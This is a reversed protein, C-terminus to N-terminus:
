NDEAGEGIWRLIYYRDEDTAYQQMSGGDIKKYLESDAPSNTNIYGKTTLEVYAVNASLNPKWSGDHCNTTACSSEFIPIIDNAFSLSSDQPIDPIKPPPIEDWVCSALGIMSLMFLLVIYEGMKKLSNYNKNM